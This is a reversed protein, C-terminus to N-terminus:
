YTDLTPIIKNIYIETIIKEFEDIQKIVYIFEIKRMNDEYGASLM